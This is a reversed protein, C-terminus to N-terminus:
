PRAIRADRARRAQVRQRNRSLSLFAGV